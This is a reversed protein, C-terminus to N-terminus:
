SRPSRPRISERHNQLASDSPDRFARCDILIIDTRSTEEQFRRRLTKSLMQRDERDGISFDRAREYHRESIYHRFLGDSEACEDVVDLGIAVHTFHLTPNGPLHTLSSLTNVPETSITAPLACMPKSARLLQSTLAQDNLMDFDAVHILMLGTKADKCMRLYVGPKNEIFIRSKAMDKILGLRAQADIPFLFPGDEPLEWSEITGSLHHIDDRESTFALAFPFKRRGVAAVANSGLGTSGKPRTNERYESQLGFMDFYWEARAAWSASHCAANCGEDLTAWVREDYEQDRVFPGTALFAMTEGDSGAQQRPVPVPTM